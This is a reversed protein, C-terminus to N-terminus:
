VADVGVPFNFLTLDTEILEINSWNNMRAKRRAVELMGPAIDVGIIRGQPGVKELILPFNLGTGCGLELVTDGPKLDLRDDVESRYTRMRLGVLRFLITAFDYRGAGADYLHKVKERPIAM